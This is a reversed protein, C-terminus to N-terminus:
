IKRDDNLKLKKDRFDEIYNLAKAEDSRNDPGVRTVMKGEKNFVIAEPYFRGIPQKFFPDDATSFALRNLGGSLECQFRDVPWTGFVVPNM